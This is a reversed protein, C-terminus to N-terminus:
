YTNCCEGVYLWPSIFCQTPDAGGQNASTHRLLAPGRIHKTRMDAVVRETTLYRLITTWSEVHLHWKSDIHKTKESVMTNHSHTTASHIDEWINTSGSVQKNFIEGM